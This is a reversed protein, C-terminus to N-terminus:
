KSQLRLGTLNESIRDTPVDRRSQESQDFPLPRVSESVVVEIDFWVSLEDFAHGDGVTVVNSRGQKGSRLTRLM